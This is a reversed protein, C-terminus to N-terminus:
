ACVLLQHSQRLSHPTPIIHRWAIFELLTVISNDPRRVQHTDQTEVVRVIRELTRSVAVHTSLRGLSDLATTLLVDEM